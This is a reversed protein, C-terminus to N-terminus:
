KMDLLRSQARRSSSRHRSNDRISGNGSSADRGRRTSPCRCNGSRRRGARSTKEGAHAALAVAAQRASQIEIAKRGQHQVEVVPAARDRRDLRETWAADSMDIPIEEGIDRRFLGLLVSLGGFPRRLDDRFIEVDDGAHLAVQIGADVFAARQRRFVLRGHLRKWSMTRSSSPGRPGTWLTAASHPGRTEIPKVVFDPPSGHRSCPLSPCAQSMLRLSLARIPGSRTTRPRRSRRCCTWRPSRYIAPMSAACCRQSNLPM